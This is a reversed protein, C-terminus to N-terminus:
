SLLGYGKKAKKRESISNLLKRITCVTHVLVPEYLISTSGGTNCCCTHYWVM